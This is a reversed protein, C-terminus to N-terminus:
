KGIKRLAEMVARVCYDLHGIVLSCDLAAAPAATVALLAAAVLYKMTLRRCDHLDSRRWGRHRRMRLARGQFRGM